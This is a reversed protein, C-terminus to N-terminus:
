SIPKLITVNAGVASFYDEWFSVHGRTQLSRSLDDVRKLYLIEVEVDLLTLQLFKKAYSHKRWTQFDFGDRYHSYQPVNQLLDSVVILRRPKTIPYNRDLAVARIMELIPSTSSPKTTNVLRTVADDIPKRFEHEYRNLIHEPNEYLPNPSSGPNCKRFEPVPLVLNDQNLVFVGVWEFDALRGRLHEIEERIAKGQSTSLSDTADILIATRPYDGDTPCFSAEDVSRRTNVWVLITATLGALVALIAIPAIRERRKSRVVPAM